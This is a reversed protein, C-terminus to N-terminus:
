APERRRRLWVALAFLAAAALLGLWLGPTSFFKGPDLQPMQWNMKHPVFSHPNAHTFAEEFSGVLRYKLFNGVYSTDFALNEIIVLALWPLTAWLFTGRRAWGSIVLLWAYVPAYWLALTALIYAFFEWIRLLPFPAPGNGRALAAGADMLLMVLHTACIVVFAILPLVVLPICAKAL